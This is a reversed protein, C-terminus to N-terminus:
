VRSNAYFVHDLGEPALSALSECLIKSVAPPRSPENFFANYYPLERMQAAAAAEVLADRGYGVNVCWLGAM